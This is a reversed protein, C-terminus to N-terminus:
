SSMRVKRVPFTEASASTSWMRRPFKRTTSISASAKQFAPLRAPAPLYGGLTSFPVFTPNTYQAPTLGESHPALVFNYPGAEGKDYGITFYGNDPRYDIASGPRNATLTIGTRCDLSNDAM